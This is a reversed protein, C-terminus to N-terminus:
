NNVFSLPIMEDSLVEKTNSLKPTGVDIIPSQILPLNQRGEPPLPPFTKRGLSAVLRAKLILNLLKLGGIQNQSSGPGNQYSSGQLHLAPKGDPFVLTSELQFTPRGKVIYAESNFEANASSKITFKLDKLIDPSIFIDVLDNVDRLGKNVDFAIDLLKRAM